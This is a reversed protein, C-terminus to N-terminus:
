ARRFDIAYECDMILSRDINIAVRQCCFARMNRLQTLNYSVEHGLIYHNSTSGICDEIIMMDYSTIIHLSSILTFPHSPPISSRFHCMTDERILSFPFPFYRFHSPISPSIPCQLPNSATNGTQNPINHMSRNMQYNSMPCWSISHCHFLIIYHVIHSRIHSFTAYATTAPSTIRSPM